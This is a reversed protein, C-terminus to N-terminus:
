YTPHKYGEILETMEYLQHKLLEHARKARPSHLDGEIIDMLEHSPTDEHLGDTLGFVDLVEEDTVEDVNGTLRVKDRGIWYLQTGQDPRPVTGAEMDDGVALNGESHRYTGSSFTYGDVGHVLLRDGVKWRQTKVVVEVIDGVRYEPL